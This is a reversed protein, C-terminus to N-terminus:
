DYYYTDSETGLGLAAFFAFYLVLAVVAGVASIWCWQKAKRSSELAGQYDGRALKGDVQSAFVIAAVGAPLCCFLTVLISQVLYNPVSGPPVPYGGYGPPPAGYGGPPGYGGYGPPPPAGYGGPPPGWGPQGDDGPPPVNSM